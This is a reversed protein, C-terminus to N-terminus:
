KAAAQKKPLKKPREVAVLDAVSGGAKEIAARAGKSAGVGSVNFKGSVDGAVIIKARSASAPVLGAKKLAELDIAGAVAM